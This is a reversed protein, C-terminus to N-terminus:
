PEGQEGEPKKKVRLFKLKREGMASTPRKKVEVLGKRVLSPIVGAKKLPIDKAMLEGARLILEYIEREARTLYEFM